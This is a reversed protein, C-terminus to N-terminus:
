RRWIGLLVTHTLGLVPHHSFKYEFTMKHHEFKLGGGIRVPALVLAWNIHAYEAMQFDQSLEATPKQDRIFLFRIQSDLGAKNKYSAGVEAETPIDSKGNAYSPQGIARLMGYGSIDNVKFMLGSTVMIASISEYKENFSIRSHIVSLGISIERYKYNGALSLGTQQFYSSEGFNSFGAALQFKDFSYALGARSDTLESLGYLSRYSTQLTLRKGTLAFPYQSIDLAGANYHDIYGHSFVQNDLYSM